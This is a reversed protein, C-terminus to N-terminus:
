NGYSGPRHYVGYSSQSIQNVSDSRQYERKVSHSLVQSPSDIPVEAVFEAVRM